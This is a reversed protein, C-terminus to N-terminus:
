DDGFMHPRSTPAPTPAHAQVWEEMERHRRAAISRALPTKIFETALRLLKEHAHKYVDAIVQQPTFSPNAETTYEIARHIGIKGIAELKDADSVIDRIQSYYAGLIAPFNLPTGALIAKNETSFSVYKIVHKIEQYNWINAAGFEDLRQELTGDHDYKHDAIDHLWAATIADLMLNGSEDIFDQEVIYRTMEAVAKMHAHGHSDDRDKCTEKVFDSLLNWRAKITEQSSAAGHSWSSTYYGVKFDAATFETIKAAAATTMTTQQQQQKPAVEM